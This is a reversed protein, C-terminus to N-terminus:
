MHGVSDSIVTKVPTKCYQVISYDLSKASRNTGLRFEDNTLPYFPSLM